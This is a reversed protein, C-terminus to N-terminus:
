PLPWSARPRSVPRTVSVRQETKEGANAALIEAASETPHRVVVVVEQPKAAEADEKAKEAAWDTRILARTTRVFYRCALCFVAAAGVVAAWGWTEPGALEWGLLGLTAIEGLVAAGTMACAYLLTRNTGYFEEPDFKDARGRWAQFAFPGVLVLLGFLLNLQVLAEKSIQDPADPFTAAGLVTGLAAGVTTLTTGWSDFSWKPGPAGKDLKTGGGACAAVSLALFAVITGVLITLPWSEPAIPDVAPTIEVARAVHAGGVTVVLQGNVVERDLENMGSLTVDLATAGAAATKPKYDLVKAGTAGSAFLTVITIAQEAGQNLLTLSTAATIAGQKPRISLTEQGLVTVTPASPQVSAAATGALVLAALVATVHSSALVRSAM